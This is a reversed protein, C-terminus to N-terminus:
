SGSLEALPSDRESSLLVVTNGRQEITVSASALGLTVAIGKRLTMHTQQKSNRMFASRQATKEFWRRLREEPPLTPYERSPEPSLFGYRDNVHVM